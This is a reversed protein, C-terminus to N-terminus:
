KITKDLINFFLDQGFPQEFAGEGGANKTPEESLSTPENSLLYAKTDPSLEKVRKIVEYGNLEGEEDEMNLDTFILAPKKKSLAAILKEGNEFIEYQITSGKEQYAKCLFSFHERMLLSDDCYMILSSSLEKQSPSKSEVAKGSLFQILKNLPLPKPVFEKCCKLHGVNDHYDNYPRNSHVLCAVKKYKEDIIKLFDYGNKDEGLDIDVIAYLVKGQHVLEVAEDVNSTDYLVVKNRLIENDKILNRVWARYLVEDELLVVHYTESSQSLLEIHSEAGEEEIVNPIIDKSNSLLEEYIPDEKEKSAPLEIIFQVGKQDVRNQARITGKQLSIVKLASALGLGTGKKKGSTFFSEFLQPIDEENLLPGTNDVVIEVMKQSNVNLDRTKITIEGRDAKGIVTIAEAANAVINALVRAFREKDILPKNCAKFEYNITITKKHYPLMVQRVIFDFVPHLSHPQVELQVSRSYDLIDGIMSEVHLISKEIDKKAQNLFSPNPQFMQGSGLMMKIQSFPKRIDHALLKAVQGIAADREQHKILIRQEEVRMENVGFLRFSHIAIYLCIALDFLPQYYFSPFFYVYILLLLYPVFFLLFSILSWSLPIHNQKRQWILHCVFSFIGLISLLRVITIFKFITPLSFATSGMWFFGSMIAGCSALILWLSWTIKSSLSLRHFYKFFAIIAFSATIHSLVLFFLRVPEILYHALFESRMLQELMVCFTFLAVFTYNQKRQSFIFLFAFFVLLTGVSILWLLPYSVMARETHLSLKKIKDAPGIFLRTYHKIGSDGTAVKGQVYLLIKKRALVKKPLSIVSFAGFSSKGMGSLVENEDIFITYESLNIYGPTFSIPQGLTQLSPPLTIYIRYHVEGTQLGLKYDKHTKFDYTPLTIAQWNSEDLNEKNYCTTAGEEACPPLPGFKIFTQISKQDLTFVNKDASIFTETGSFFSISFIFFGILALLACFFVVQLFRELWM